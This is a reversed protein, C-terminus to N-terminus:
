MRGGSPRSFSTWGVCGLVACMRSHTHTGLAALLVPPEFELWRRQRVYAAPQSLRM